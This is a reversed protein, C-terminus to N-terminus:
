AAQPARSAREIWTEGSVRAGDEDEPLGAAGDRALRRLGWAMLACLMLAIAITAGGLCMAHVIM